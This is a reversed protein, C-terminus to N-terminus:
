WVQPPWPFGLNIAPWDSTCTGRSKCSTDASPATKHSQTRVQPGSRDTNVRPVWTRLSNVAPCWQHQPVPTLVPEGLCSVLHMVRSTCGTPIVGIPWMIPKKIINFPVDGCFALIAYTFPIRKSDCPSPLRRTTPQWLYRNGGCKQFATAVQSLSSLHIGTDTIGSTLQRFIRLLELNQPWM